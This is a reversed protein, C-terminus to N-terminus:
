AVLLLDLLAADDARPLAHDLPDVEPLLIGEVAPGNSIQVDIGDRWSAASCLSLGVL